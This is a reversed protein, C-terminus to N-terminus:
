EVVMIEKVKKFMNLMTLYTFLFDQHKTSLGKKKGYKSRFLAIPQIYTNRFAKSVPKPSVRLTLCEKRKRLYEDKFSECSFLCSKILKVTKDYDFCNDFFIVHYRSSTGCQSSKVILANGLKIKYKRYVNNVYNGLKRILKQFGIAKTDIMLIHKKHRCYSNIGITLYLPLKSLDFKEKDFFLSNELDITEIIKM